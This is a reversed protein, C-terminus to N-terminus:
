RTGVYVQTVGTWGLVSLAGQRRAGGVVVLDSNLVASASGHTAVIPLEAEQWAQGGPLLHFHRDIVGGGLTAPDEGGVVHIGDATSGAAMASMPIPLAPGESWADSATDYVDVRATLEDDRGGIAYIRSGVIAIALHDRKGPMEAGLSWTREAIDYILVNSTEGRGGVVYLKGAIPAMQHGMRGEPMEPLREWSDAVPSLMWLNPLPDWSTASTSGGSVYVVGGWGAAAPHHRGEPLDPGRRWANAEPNYISVTAVTNGLGALGGVVFLRVPSATCAPDGPPCDDDLRAGVAAAFEGRPEPLDALREWGDAARVGPTTLGLFAVLGGFAVSLAILALLSRLLVKRMSACSVCTRPDTRAAVPNSQPAM